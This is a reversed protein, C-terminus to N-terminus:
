GRASKDRWVQLIAERQKDRSLGDDAMRSLRARSNPSLQLGEVATIAAFARAGLVRSPKSRKTPSTSMGSDHCVAPVSALASM